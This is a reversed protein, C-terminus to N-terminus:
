MLLYYLFIYHVPIQLRKSICCCNIKKSGSFAADEKPALCHQLVTTTSPAVREEWLNSTPSTFVSM